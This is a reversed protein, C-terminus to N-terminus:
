RGWEPDNYEELPNESHASLFDKYDKPGIRIRLVKGVPFSFPESLMMGQSGACTIHYEPAKECFSAMSMLAPNCFHIEDLIVLTREPVISKSLITELGRIIRKTDNDKRFIDCLVPNDKFNFYAIDEYNREGFIRLIHAKGAQKIGELLLPRRDATRKWKLLDDYITREM